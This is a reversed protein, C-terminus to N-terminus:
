IIHSIYLSKGGINIHHFINVYFILLYIVQVPQELFRSLAGLVLPDFHGFIRLFFLNIWSKTNSTCWSVSELNIFKSPKSDGPSVDLKAIASL